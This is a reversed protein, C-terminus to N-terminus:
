AGGAPGEAQLDVEEDDLELTLKLSQGAVLHRPHSLSIMLQGWHGPSGPRNHMVLGDDYDAEWWLLLGACTGDALAAAEIEAFVEDDPDHLDIDALLCPASMPRHTTSVYPYAEAHQMADTLAGLQLGHRKGLDHLASLARAGELDAPQAHALAGYLRMRSPALHGGPALWATAAESVPLIGESFPHANLLESFVLDHPSPDLDQLMAERVTVRDQLGNDEVLQRIVQALGTPEVATVHRAGMRAALLTWIGSGAGIDLVRAGEARRALLQLLVENRATDSLLRLQEWPDGFAHIQESM